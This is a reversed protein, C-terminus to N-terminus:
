ATAPVGVHVQAVHESVAGRSVYRNVWWTASTRFASPPAEQQVTSM